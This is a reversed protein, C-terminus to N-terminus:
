FTSNSKSSTEISISSASSQELLSEHMSGKIETSNNQKSSFLCEVLPEYFNSFDHSDYEMYTVGIRILSVSVVISVKFLVIVVLINQNNSIFLATMYIISVFLMNLSAFLVFKLFKKLLLIFFSHIPPPSSVSTQLFNIDSLKKLVRYVWLSVVLFLSVSLVHVTFTYMCYFYFRDTDTSFLYTVSHPIVIEIVISVSLFFLICFSITQQNKNCM